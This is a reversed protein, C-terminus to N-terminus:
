HLVFIVAVIVAAVFGVACIIAAIWAYRWERRKGAPGSPESPNDDQAM